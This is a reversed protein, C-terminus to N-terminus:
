AQDAAAPPVEGWGGQPAALWRWHRLLRRYACFLDADRLEPDECLAELYLVVLRALGPSGERQYRRILVVLRRRAAEPGLPPQHGGVAELPHLTISQDLM